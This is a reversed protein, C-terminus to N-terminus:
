ESRITLEVQVKDTDICLLSIVLLQCTNSLRFCFTLDDAFLENTDKLFFCLLNTGNVEQCLSSNIRVHYLTTKTSFGRHDFRMM